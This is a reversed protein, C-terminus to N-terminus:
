LETLCNIDVPLDKPRAVRGLSCLLANTFGGSGSHAFQDFCLTRLSRLFLWSLVIGFFGNLGGGLVDLIFGDDFFVVFIGVVVLQDSFDLGFEGLPVLDSLCLGFGLVFPVLLLFRRGRLFGFLRFPMGFSLGHSFFLVLLRCNNRDFGDVNFFNFFNFFFGFLPDGRCRLLNCLCLRDIFSIPSGLLGSLSGIPKFSHDALALM